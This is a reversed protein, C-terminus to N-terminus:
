VVSAPSEYPIPIADRPRFSKSKHRELFQFKHNQATKLSRNRWFKPPFLFISGGMVCELCGAKLHYLNQKHTIFGTPSFRYSCLILVFLTGSLCVFRFCYGSKMPSLYCETHLLHANLCLLHISMPRRTAPSNTCDTVIEVCALLWHCTCSADM